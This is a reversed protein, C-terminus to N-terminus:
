LLPPSPLIGPIHSPPCRSPVEPYSIPHCPFPFGKLLYDCPRKKAAVHPKHEGDDQKDENQTHHGGDSGKILYWEVDQGIRKLHILDFVNTRFKM